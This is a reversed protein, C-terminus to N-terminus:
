VKALGVLKMKTFRVRRDNAMDSWDFYEESSGIWDTFLTPNIKGEFDPVEMRVKKTLDGATNNPVHRNTELLAIAWEHITPQQIKARVDRMPPLYQPQMEPQKENNM